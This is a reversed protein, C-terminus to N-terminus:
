CTSTLTAHYKHRYRFFLRPFLLFREMGSNAVREHQYEAVRPMFGRRQAAADCHSDRTPVHVDQSLIDLMAPSLNSIIRAIIVAITKCVVPSRRSNVMSVSCVVKQRSFYVWFHANSDFYFFCVTEKQTLTPSLNVNHKWDRGRFVM